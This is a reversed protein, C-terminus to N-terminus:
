GVLLSQMKLIVTSTLMCIMSFKLRKSSSPEGGEQPKSKTSILYPHSSTTSRTPGEGRTKPVTAILRRGQDTLETAILSRRDQYGMAVTKPDSEARIVDDRVASEIGVGGRPGEGGGVVRQGVVGIGLAVPVDPGVRAALQQEGERVEVQLGGGDAGVVVQSHTVRRATQLQKLLIQNVPSLLTLVPPKRADYVKHLTTVVNKGRWKRRMGNWSKSPGLVCAGTIPVKQPYAGGGALLVVPGARVTTNLLSEETAM